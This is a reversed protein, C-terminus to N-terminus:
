TAKSKGKGKGFDANRSVMAHQLRANGTQMLEQVETSDHLEKWAKWAEDHWTIKMKGDEIDVNAVTKKHVTMTGAPVDVEIAKKDIAGWKNLQWRIGLLLSRIVRVEVPADHKCWIESEKYMPKSKSIMDIARSAVEVNIFRAYLRGKFEDGKFYTTEPAEVKVEMLKATLWDIEDKGDGERGFGGFVVTQTMDDNLGQGGKSASSGGKGDNQLTELHKPMMEGPQDNVKKNLQEFQSGAANKNDNLEKRM